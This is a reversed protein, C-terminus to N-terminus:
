RYASFQTPGDSTGYPETTNLHTLGASPLAFNAGPSNGGGAAFYYASNYYDEGGTSLTLGPFEEGGVMLHFCGELFCESGSKVFLSTAFILGSGSALDVIPIMEFADVTIEENKLLKLRTSSPLLLDGVTVQAGEQGRVILFFNGGDEDVTNATVEISKGFPIKINNFFGGASSGHGFHKNGWPAFNDTFGVTKMTPSASALSMVYSVSATTEGDVYFSLIVDGATDDGGTAWVHTICGSGSHSLVPHGASSRGPLKVNPLSEGFTRGLSLVDQYPAAPLLITLFILITSFM